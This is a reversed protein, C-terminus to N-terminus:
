STALTTDGHKEWFISPKRHTGHGFYTQSVGSITVCTDNLAAAPLGAAPFPGGPLERRMVRILALAVVWDLAIHQGSALQAQLIDM